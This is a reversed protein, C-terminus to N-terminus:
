IWKSEGNGKNYLENYLDQDNDQTPLYGDNGGFRGMDKYFMSARKDDETDIDDFKLDVHTENNITNYIAGAMAELLDLSLTSSQCNVVTKAGMIRKEAHRAENEFDPHYPMIVRNNVLSERLADWAAVYAGNTSVRKVKNPKNYDVILKCMTRDISLSDCAYGDNVLISVSELTNYKDFSILKINFGRRALEYIVMERIDALDIMGGVPAFLKGLFDFKVYPLKVESERGTDM